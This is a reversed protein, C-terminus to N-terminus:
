HVPTTVGRYPIPAAWHHRHRRKAALFALTLAAGVLLLYINHALASKKIPSSSM